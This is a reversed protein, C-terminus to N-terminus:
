KRLVSYVVLGSVIMGIGAAIIKFPMSIMLITCTAVGLVPLIPFQKINLPVKFPRRANPQAYRLWIVALNIVAFTVFVTFNTANAAFEIEGIWIFVVSFAGVVAAAVWPTKRTPHIRAIQEPFVGESAMGYLIRTDTVLMLLTTNATAFLAILTLVIAVDEGLAAFVVEALPAKSAALKRWNIVSVASLGVLIYIVACIALSLLLATPVTRKPNKTEEAFRTVSEFGLYAFSLLAAARLISATDAYTPLEFYNVASFKPLGVAIVLLLGSAEIVTMIAATWATERIGYFNILSLIIILLTAVLPLFIEPALPLGVIKTLYRAFGLSVTAAAFMTGVVILWGILFALARGFTRETYVYEAGAKPWITSLEAYSLGTFAAVIAGVVFSLWIANGVIGAAVGILAYIGVGLIIGVGAVTTEFLGLARRLKARPM